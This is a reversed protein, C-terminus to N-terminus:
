GPVSPRYRPVKSLVSRPCLVLTKTRYTWTRFLHKLQEYKGLSLLWSLDVVADVAEGFVLGYFNSYKNRLQNIWKVIRMLRQLRDIMWENMWKNMWEHMWANTCENMWENMWENMLEDMYMYNDMFENDKIYTQIHLTCLFISCCSRFTSVRGSIGRYPWLDCTM